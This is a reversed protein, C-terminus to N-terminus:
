SSYSPRWQNQFLVDWCNQSESPQNTSLGTLMLRVTLFFIISLSWRNLYCSRFVNLVISLSSQSTFIWWSSDHGLDESAVQLTSSRYQKLQILKCFLIWYLVSISRKQVWSSVNLCIHQWSRVQNLPKLLLACSRPHNCYLLKSFVYNHLAHKNNYPLHILSSLFSFFRHLGFGTCFFRLQSSLNSCLVSFLFLQAGRTSHLVTLGAAYSLGEDFDSSLNRTCRKKASQVQTHTHFTTGM